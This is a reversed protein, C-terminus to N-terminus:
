FSPTLFIKSVFTICIHVPVTIFRIKPVSFRSTFMLCKRRSSAYAELIKQRDHIMRIYIFDINRTVCNSFKWFSYCAFPKSWRASKKLIISVCSTLFSWQKYSTLLSMIMEVVVWLKVEDEALKISDVGCETERINIQVDRVQMEIGQTAGLTFIEM